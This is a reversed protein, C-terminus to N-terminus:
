IVFVDTLFFSVNICINQNKKKGSYQQVNSNMDPTKIQLILLIASM